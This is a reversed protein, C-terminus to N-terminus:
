RTLIYANFTYVDYCLNQAAQCCCNNPHGCPSAHREIMRKRGSEFHSAINFVVLQVPPSFLPSEWWWDEDIKSGSIYRIRERLKHFVVM